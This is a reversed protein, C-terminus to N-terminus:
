YLLQLCFQHLHHLRPRADAMAIANSFVSLSSRPILDNHSFISNNASRLYWDGLGSRVRVYHSDTGTIVWFLRTFYPTQILHQFRNISSIEEVCDPQCAALDRL